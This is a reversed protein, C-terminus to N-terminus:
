WAGISELALRDKDAGRCDIGNLAKEIANYIARQRDTFFMMHGIGAKYPNARIMIAQWAAAEDTGMPPCKAKLFGKNKGRTSIAGDIAAKCIDKLETSDMDNIGKLHAM